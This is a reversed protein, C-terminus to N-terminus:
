LYGRISQSREVLDNIKNTIINVEMKIRMFNPVAIASLGGIIAIAILIEILTFGGKVKKLNHM